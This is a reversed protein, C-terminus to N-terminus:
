RFVPNYNVHYARPLQAAIKKKERIYKLRKFYCEGNVRWSM